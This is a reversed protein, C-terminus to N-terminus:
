ANLQHAKAPRSDPVIVSPQLAETRSDGLGYAETALYFTTRVKGGQRRMSAWQILGTGTDLPRSALASVARELVGPEPAGDPASASWPDEDTRAYCRVPVHLTVSSPRADDDSTFALCTLASRTSGFRHTQGKLAQCFIWAEGPMYEKGLAM